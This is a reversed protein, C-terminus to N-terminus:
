APQGASKVSTRDMKSPRPLIIADRVGRIRTLGQRLEGHEETRAADDWVFAIIHQYGSGEQLYTSADAAVEKITSSFVSPGGPRMFKVEIILELSPIALDARPHHPGLSKLWEEDDLDPFVPALIAWLMDQVHYENAVEWRALSSRSTRPATEWAWRRMSRAVGELLRAVDEVSASGLRLTSADRLLYTLAALQAAARTMGDTSGVLGLIIDGATARSAATVPMLSKAALAVRLDDTVTGPEQAIICLAAAILSANWDALRGSGLSRRLLPELWARASTREDDKLHAVGAVTGLLALGDVEFTLPRGPAFYQRQRLWELAAIFPANFASDLNFAYGLVAAHVTQLAPGNAAAAETALHGFLPVQEMRVSQIWAAFARAHPPQGVDDSAAAALSRRLDWLSVDTV